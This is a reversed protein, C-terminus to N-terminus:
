LAAKETRRLSVSGYKAQWAFFYLLAALPQGVLCFSVWFIMNGMTPGFHTIKQVADTLAILPIQLMMGMFAVGIINHTPIGVLMEHLVASFVFVLVQAVKPRVGRAVLPLYIHRKMFSSVPINWSKWYSAISTSNWFDKYFERDAFTMLEALLNLFSQFTAYFGALWCFLSISSLKLVRELISMFDLNSIIPLSNNLLPVAFQASAIWIAIGLTVIEGARKLVFTWRIHSTRPYLPQYILTPAFWFYSLNGLSINQPYPCSKYLEPISSSPAQILLAHRLDRNTLAYSCVKLWVIVAHLECITGIGPHYIHYYVVYSAVCLNLTANIGHALAILHWTPTFKTRQSYLETQSAHESKKKARGIVGKVEQAAILEILYSVFLHSPVLSFLIAGYTVDQRRYDHCSLCLLVGYKRWNEIM